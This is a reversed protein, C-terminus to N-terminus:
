IVDSKELSCYVGSNSIILSDRICIFAYKHMYANMREAPTICPKTFCFVFFLICMYIYKYINKLLAVACIPFLTLTWTNLALSSALLRNADPPGAVPWVRDLNGQNEQVWLLQQIPVWIGCEVAHKV